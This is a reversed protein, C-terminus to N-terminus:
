ALYKILFQILKKSYKYPAYRFPFDVLYSNRYVSKQHSFSEFSYKGHYSGLGSNGVGGFPMNDNVMHMVTDNISAGGSSTETLVKDILKENKSFVYTALPKPERNIYDIVEEINTYTYYPLVPGFIEDTMISDDLDNVKILTPEIYKDDADTRGGFVVRDKASDILKKIRNFHHETIIRGYSESKQADEGYNKVINKKIQNIVKEEADKQIFLYNPALCVQGNNVFKGWVLREIGYKLHIDNEVICPCKGGLELVVPTLNKAAAEYVIKGVRSSGTFCIMDMKEKLLAQSIEPGGEFVSIYQQSFAENVIKAIVASTHKSYESPKVVVANGAAIAGILPIMLLQFPFNWPAIILVLGYPDYYIKSSGVMMFMPTGARKPKSWQNLKKSFKDIDKMVMGIETSFAEYPHKHLDQKLADLIEDEYKLIAKKLNALQKKRFSLEKTIGSNFFKRQKNLIDAVESNAISQQAVATVM